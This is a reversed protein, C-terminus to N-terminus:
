VGGGWVFLVPFLGFFIVGVAFPYLDYFCRVKRSLFASLALLALASIPVAAYLIIQGTAPYDPIHRSQIALLGDIGSWLLFSWGAAVLAM